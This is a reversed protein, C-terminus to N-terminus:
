AILAKNKEQILGAFQLVYGGIVIVLGISVFRFSSFFIHLLVLSGMGLALFSITQLTQRDMRLNLYPLGAIGLSLLIVLWGLGNEIDYADKVSIISKEGMSHIRLGLPNENMEKGLDVKIWPFFSGLLVVAAGILIFRRSPSLPVTSPSSVRHTQTLANLLDSAEEATIKGQELMELIDKPSLQPTARNGLIENVLDLKKCVTPCAIGLLKEMERINGRCRLFIM